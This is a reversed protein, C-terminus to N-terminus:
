WTKLIPTITLQKLAQDYAEFFEEETILEFSPDQTSELWVTGNDPLKYNSMETVFSHQVFTILTNEDIIGIYRTYSKYFSPVAIHVTETTQKPISIQM